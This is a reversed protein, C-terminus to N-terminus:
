EPQLVRYYKYLDEFVPRLRALNSKNGYVDWLFREADELPDGKGSEEDNLTLICRVLPESVALNLEELRIQEVVNSLVDQRLEQWSVQLESAAAAVGDSTQTAPETRYDPREEPTDARERVQNRDAAGWGLLSRGQVALFTFIGSLVTGVSALLARGLDGDTAGNAGGPLIGAGPATNALLLVVAVLLAALIALVAIITLAPILPRLLRASLNATLNKTLATVIGAVPFSHPDRRGTLVDFWNAVQEELAPLLKEGHEPSIRITQEISSSPRMSRRRNRSPRETSSLRLLANRWYGLSTSVVTIAQPDLVSSLANIRRQIEGIRQKGFAVNWADVPPNGDTPAAQKAVWIQWRTLNLAKGVKYGNLMMPTDVVFDVIADDWRYIAEELESLLSELEHSRGNGQEHAELLSDIKQKVQVEEKESPLAVHSVGDYFREFQLLTPELKLLKQLAGLIRSEPSRRQSLDPLFRPKPGQPTEPEDRLPQPNLTLDQSHAVLDQLTAGFEMAAVVRERETSGPQVPHSIAIKNLVPAPTAM